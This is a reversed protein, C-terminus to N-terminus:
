MKTEKERKDKNNKDALYSWTKARLVAFERM